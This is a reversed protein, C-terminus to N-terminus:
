DTGLIGKRAKGRREAALVRRRDAPHEALYANVEAVTATAPDFRVVPVVEAIEEVVEVVEDVVADATTTTTETRLRRRGKIFLWM